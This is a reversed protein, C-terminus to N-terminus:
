KYADLIEKLIDLGGNPLQSEPDSVFQLLYLANDKSFHAIHRIASVGEDWTDTVIQVPMGSPTVYDESTVTGNVEMRTDPHGSINNEETRLTVEEDVSYNEGNYSSAIRIVVPTEEYYVIHVLNSVPGDDFYYIGGRDLQELLPNGGLDLGLFATCERWSVFPLNLDAVDNEGLGKGYALVEESLSEVPTRGYKGYIDISRGAGGHISQDQPVINVWGFHEAALATGALAAVLAAAVLAAAPIRRRNAQKMTSVEKQEKLLDALMAEERAPPLKVQDFVRNWKSNEM